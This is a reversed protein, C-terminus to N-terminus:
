ELIVEQVMKDLLDHTIKENNEKIPQGQPSGQIVKNPDLALVIHELYEDAAFLADFATQGDKITGKPTAYKKCSQEATRLSSVYNELFSIVEQNSQSVASFIMDKFTKTRVSAVYITDLFSKNNTAVTLDLASLNGKSDKKVNQKLIARQSASGDKNLAYIRFETESKRLIKIHYIDLAMIKAPDSAGASTKKIQSVAQKKLAIIYTVPVGIEFGGSAQTLNSKNRYYKSSGQEGTSTTFDVAGMGQGPGSDKGTVKGGGLLALFYEFVYGGAGSDFSKVVEALYDLLMIETLMERKNANDVRPAEGISADYYKRSIESIKRIRELMSEQGSFFTRLINDVEPNFVGQAAQATQIQPQTVSQQDLATKGIMGYLKQLVDNARQRLNLNKAAKRVAILKSEINTDVKAPDTDLLDMLFDFDEDTLKTKPEKLKSLTDFAATNTVKGKPTNQPSLFLDGLNYNDESLNIQETILKDLLESNLKM